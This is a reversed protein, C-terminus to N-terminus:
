AYDEEMKKIKYNLNDIRGQTYAIQKQLRADNSGDDLQKLRMLKLELMTKQEKDLRYREIQYEALAIRVHYIPNMKVGIFGFGFPDVESQGAVANINNINEPNVNMDPMKKFRTEVDAKSGAMITMASYYDTLRSEIWKIEGAPIEFSTGTVAAEEMDMTVILLRNTVRIAFDMTEMYQLLNARVITMSERMIDDAFYSDVLHEIAPINESINKMVEHMVVYFNGRTRTNLKVKALFQENFGKVWDDKFKRDGALEAITALPPLTNTNLSDKIQTINDIIRAKDFSPLLSQLFNLLKM